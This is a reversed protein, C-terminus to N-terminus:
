DAASPRASPTEYPAGREHAGRLRFGLVMLLIGFVIAYSAIVWLVALVGAGPFTVMMAGFFISLIGALILMWEGEILKRLRIAAWIELIGSAMAWLAIIILLAIPTLGPSIITVIAAGIGAVGKLVLAWWPRGEQGAIASVIALVGDVFAYAAFVLMLAAITIGPQVFAILGFLVALAGRLVLVWWNRSLDGIM